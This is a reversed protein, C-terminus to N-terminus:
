QFISVALMCCFYNLTLEKIENGAFTHIRVIMVSYIKQMSDRKKYPVYFRRANLQLVAM